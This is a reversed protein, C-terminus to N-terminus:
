RPVRRKLEEFWNLVVVIPQAEPREIPTVMLFQSGDPTVDYGVSRGGGLRGADAKRFLLTPTGAEGTAPQFTVVLVADGQRFVLERGGKTWRPQSGGNASVQRRGSSGDLARVFVEPQGSAGVEDYALWRGDPSFAGNRQSSERPEVPTVQGGAVPAIMLVDRDVREHFVVSRGDPSVASALKDFKTAFVTDATTGDIPTRHLDYVPTEVTHIISRSDPMWVPSFAVGLARTLQTMVRRNVDYLMVQWPPEVRTLAVWRGDPSLRPEAWMGPDPLAPRENGSRDAWIVRARVDWESARLYVLTGNPSVDYGANGDTPTWALNEVVPAAPGLARLRDPDFPMAFIAGDRAFLLHGSAVYRPAIAGEVLVTRRGSAFEVAEIRSRAFPTSFSNFLAASGGPLAQPYWHNFETRASDLSTLREPEGGEARVRWLGDGSKTYLIWGDDSWSGANTSSNALVTSTGGGAPMKRIKGESFFLIWDGDPSFAPESAGESGPVAVVATSGLDRILLRYVGNSDLVAQIIRRGDPSITLHPRATNGTGMRFALEVRGASADGTRGTWGWAALAAFTVAAVAAAMATHRWRTDGQATRAAVGAGRTAIRGQLAAAFDAASAFRDAPLKELAQAVAGAVHAPVSKRLETVPRPTDAIIKMIIQQASNGMHPPEGTLMEYLVSALSYIDSRGTIDKDATAQEPSMYHPTGLSLGTETMRGGAAASVALAIGFDAVMPRGNQMLINEPKIDRHIVGHQHAYHLADAVETAIRVAEDIGLQTERNLTDRLTEGEVFPMVYYLFGDATGSDFLPLIHPHQLSATTKIEVVFREAGLVAALEPKLVKLAVKRDHKLDQALYVTAMGGQGLEREIRYRDALAGSLREPTGPM